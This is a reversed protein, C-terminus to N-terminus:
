GNGNGNGNDADAANLPRKYRVREHYGGWREEGWYVHPGVSEPPTTTVHLPNRTEYGEAALVARAADRADTESMALINRVWRPEFIGIAGVRRTEYLVNYKVTAGSGKADNKCGM